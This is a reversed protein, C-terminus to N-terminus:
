CMGGRKSEERVKGDFGGGEIRWKEIKSHCHYELGELGTEREGEM